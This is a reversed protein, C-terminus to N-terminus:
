DIKGIRYRLFCRNAIGILRGMTIKQGKGSTLGSVIKSYSVKHLEKKV